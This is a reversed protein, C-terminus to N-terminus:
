GLVCALLPWLATCQIRDLDLFLLILMPQQFWGISVLGGKSGIVMKMSFILEMIM